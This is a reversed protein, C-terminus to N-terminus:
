RRKAAAPTAPSLSWRARAPWRRKSTAMSNPWSTNGPSLSLDTSRSRERWSPPPPAPTDLRSAPQELSQSKTSWHASCPRGPHSQYLQPPRRRLPYAWSSKWSRACEEYQRLAASRRGSWTYLRMLQRHAQKTWRTWRWGASPMALAAEFERQHVTGIAGAKGACRGARPAASPRSLQWDDFNISDKLSFGSLFDGRVLGVADTLPGACAPCVQSAPHGHTECEALHQRFQDVDVWLGASRIRSGIEERDVDLWAGDLAKSLAYLTRRLAARGRARDYEPWLLNVLSARRHSEGTVALYALLAIAKRRNVKIPVGDREIRPPGFLYLALRTVM